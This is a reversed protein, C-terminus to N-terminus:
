KEERGAANHREEDIRLQSKFKMHDSRRKKADESDGRILSKKPNLEVILYYEAATDVPLVRYNNNFDTLQGSIYLKSRVQQSFPEPSIAKGGISQFDPIGAEHRFSRINLTMSNLQEKLDQTIKPHDIDLRSNLKEAIWMQSIGDSYNRIKKTKVILNIDDFPNVVFAQGNDALLELNAKVIRHRKGFYTARKLSFQHKSFVQDQVDQKVPQFLHELKQSNVSFPENSFVYGSQVVLLFIGLKLFTKM